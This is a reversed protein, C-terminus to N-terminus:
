KWKGKKQTTRLGKQEWWPFVVWKLCNLDFRSQLPKNILSMTLWCDTFQILFILTLLVTSLSCYWVCHQCEFLEMLVWKYSPGQLLAQVCFWTNGFDGFSHTICCGCPMARGWTGKMSHPDRHQEWCGTWHSPPGRGTAPYESNPTGTDWGPPEAEWLIHETTIDRAVTTRSLNKYRKASCFDWTKCM